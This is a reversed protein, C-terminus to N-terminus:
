NKTITVVIETDIEIGSNEATLTYTVPANFDNITIGSEQVIGNIKVVTNPELTTFEAAQNTLDISEDVTLNIFFRQYNTFDINLKNSPILSMTVSKGAVKFTSFEPIMAFVVYYNTKAGQANTLTYTKSEFNTVSANFHDVTDGLTFDGHGEITISQNSNIVPKIYYNSFSQMPVFQDPKKEYLLRKWHYIPVIIQNQENPVGEFLYKAQKGDKVFGYNNSNFKLVELKGPPENVLISKQKLVTDIQDKVLSYSSVLYTVTYTGGKVYTYTYNGQVDAEVGSANEDGFNHSTIGITDGTFVTIKNGQGLNYFYVLEGVSVENSSMSFDAIPEIYYDEEADCSSFLVASLFPLLFSVRALIIKINIRYIKM